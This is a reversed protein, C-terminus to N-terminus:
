SPHAFYQISKKSVSLDLSISPCLVNPQEPIYYMVNWPFDRPRQENCKSVTFSATKIGETARGTTVKRLFCSLDLHSGICNDATVRPYHSLERTRLKGVWIVSTIVVACLAKLVPTLVFSVLLSVDMSCAPGSSSRFSPKCHTNYSSRRVGHIRNFGNQPIQGQKNQM